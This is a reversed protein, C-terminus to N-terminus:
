RCFNSKGYSSRPREHFKYKLAITTVYLGDNSNGQKDRMAEFNDKAQFRYQVGGMVSWWHNFNYELALEVPYTLSNDSIEQPLSYPSVTSKTDYFSLGVGGNIFVNWTPARHPYFINLVNVSVYLTTSQVNGSFKFNPLDAGIPTYFYEAIFGVQPIFYYDVAAAVAFKPDANKQPIDGDFLSVGAKAAIGWKEHKLRNRQAFCVLTLALFILLLSNRKM